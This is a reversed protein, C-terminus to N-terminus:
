ATLETNSQNTLCKAPEQTAPEQAVQEIHLRFAQNRNAARELAFLWEALQRERTPATQTKQLIMQDINLEIEVMGIIAAAQRITLRYKM